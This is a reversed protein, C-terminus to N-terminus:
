EEREEPTNLINNDKEHKNVAEGLQEETSYNDPNIGYKRAREKLDQDYRATRSAMEQDIKEERKKAQSQQKEEKTM